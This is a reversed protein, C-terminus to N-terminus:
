NQPPPGPYNLFKEGTLAFTQGCVLTRNNDTDLDYFNVAVTLNIKRNAIHGTTVFEILRPFYNSERNDQIEGQDYISVKKFDFKWFVLRYQHDNNEPWVDAWIWENLKAPEPNCSDEILTISAGYAGGPANSLNDDVIEYNKGCGTLALFVTVLLVKM